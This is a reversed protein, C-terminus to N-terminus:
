KRLFSEITEVEKTYIDDRYNHSNLSLLTMYLDLLLNDNFIVNNNDLTNLLYKNYEIDSIIEM